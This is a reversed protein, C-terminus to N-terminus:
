MLDKNKKYDAFSVVKSHLNSNSCRTSEKPVDPQEVFSLKWFDVMREEPYFYDQDELTSRLLRNVYYGSSFLEDDNKPLRGALEIQDKFHFIVDNIHAQVSRNYSKCYSFSACASIKKLVRQSTDGNLECLFNMENYLRFMFLRFFSDPDIKKINAFLISYRSMVHMAVVCNKRKVQFSHVVWQNLNNSVGSDETIDNVTSCIQERFNQTCNFVFM